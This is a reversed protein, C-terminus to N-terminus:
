RASGSYTITALTNWDLTGAPLRGFIAKFTKLAAAESKLNRNKALQQLGYAIIKVAASDHAENMKASRLYIKKFQVKATAEAKTSTAAPWRGSAIKILDEFDAQSSPLKGFAQKYSYVVAARQGQGLLQTNADVGYAIFEIISANSSESVPQALGQSLKGLYNNNIQSEKATDRISGTQALLNALDNNYLLVASQQFKQADTMAASCAGDALVSINNAAALCINLYTQGDVGCVPIYQMNCAVPTAVVTSPVGFNIEVENSIVGCKGGLNECVRVFYYGNGSYAAVMDSAARLDALYDSQDGERLPYVPNKKTSWIIIFGHASIGDTSWDIRGGDAAATLTIKSLEAAATPNTSSAL